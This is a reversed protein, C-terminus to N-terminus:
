GAIEKSGENSDRRSTVKRYVTLKTESPLPVARIDQGTLIRNQLIAIWNNTESDEFSSSCSKIQENYIDIFVRMQRLTDQVVLNQLHIKKELHWVELENREKQLVTKAENEQLERIDLELSKVNYQASLLTQYRSFIERLAQACKAEPTPYEEEKIVGFRCVHSSMGLTWREQLAESFKGVLDEVPNTAVLSKM